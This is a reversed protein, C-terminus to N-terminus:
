KKDQKSVQLMMKLTKANDRLFEAIVQGGEESLEGDQNLLGTDKLALKILENGKDVSTIGNVKKIEESLLYEISVNFFKSLELLSIIDPLSVNREYASYTQRKVNLFSALEDQTLNSSTRLFKLKDGLINKM